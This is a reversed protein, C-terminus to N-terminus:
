MKEEFQASDKITNNPLQTCAELLTLDIVAPNKLIMLRSNNRSSSFPGIITTQSRKEKENRKNDRNAIYTASTEKATLM